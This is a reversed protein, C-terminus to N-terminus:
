EAVTAKLYTGGGERSGGRWAQCKASMHKLDERRDPGGSLTEPM